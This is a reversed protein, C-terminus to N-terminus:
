IIHDQSHHDAHYWEYFMWNWKWELDNITNGDIYYWNFFNERTQAHIQAHYLIILSSIQDGRSPYRNHLCVRIILLWQYDSYCHGHLLGTIASGRPQRRSAPHSLKLKHGFILVLEIFQYYIIKITCTHKPYLNKRGLYNEFDPNYISLVDDIYRYTFNLRSALRKRGTSLLSEIFEAEYIYMFINALLPACNTGM